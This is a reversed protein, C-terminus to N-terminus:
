AIALYIYTGNLGNFAGNNTDISFGNSLFNHPYASYDTEAYPENPFLVDGLPNSPNRISDWIHWDTGGTDTRKTMLFRPKFAGTGTGDGNSDTYVIKGAAGSGQYSGVRQYSDVSHFCYAIYNNNNVNGSYANGVSFVNSTPTTQNYSYAANNTLGFPDAHNLYSFYPSAPVYVWWDTAADLDKRIILEPTTSLGHGVTGTGGTGKHKVISFGTATNVSAGTPNITGSDLGAASATAYGVDDINYTSTSGGAKWCWAVYDNNGIYEPDSGNGLSFGDPDFSYLRNPTNTEQNPLSSYLQGGTGRVSDWLGHYATGTGTNRSKIWVLDPQLRVDTVSQDNTSNGTYL